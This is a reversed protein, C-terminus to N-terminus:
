VESDSRSSSEGIPRVVSELINFEKIKFWSKLCELAELLKIRIRNRRDTITLSYSSFLRKVDASMYLILLM